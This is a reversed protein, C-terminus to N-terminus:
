AAQKAALAAGVWSRLQSLTFPKEITDTVIGNLSEARERQDAYGTMLLITLGPCARAAEHALAIGDLAPMRIDSLLLDFRDGRAILELGEEGDCAEVTEHADMALARAVFTRVSDDDEAILIRAM